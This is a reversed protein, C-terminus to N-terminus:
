SHLSPDLSHTPFSNKNPPPLPPYIRLTLLFFPPGRTRKDQTVSCLLSAMSAASETDNPAYPTAILGDVVRPDLTELLIEAFPEPRGAKFQTSSVIAQIVRIALKSETLAARISDRADSRGQNALLHLVSSAVADSMAAM